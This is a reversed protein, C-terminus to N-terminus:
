LERTRRDVEAAPQEPDLHVGIEEEPVDPWSARAREYARQADVAVVEGLPQTAPSHRLVIWRLSM